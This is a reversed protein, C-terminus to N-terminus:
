ATSWRCRCEKGVRREESRDPQGVTTVLDSLLDFLRPDVHHVDGTRHDRLFRELQDVAEPVYQDGIRYVVDIHEDTHTHYLRLRHIESPDDSSSGGSTALAAGPALLVILILILNRLLRYELM